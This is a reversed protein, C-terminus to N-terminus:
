QNEKITKIIMDAVKDYKKWLVHYGLSENEKLIKLIELKTIMNMDVNEVNLLIGKERVLYERVNLVYVM